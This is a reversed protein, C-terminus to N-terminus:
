CSRKQDEHTNFRDKIRKAPNGAAVSNPPIVGQRVVAGIALFSEKSITVGPLITCRSAVGVNEELVVPGVLYCEHEPGCGHTFYINRNTRDLFSAYHNTISLIHTDAACCCYDGIQVGGNGLIYCGKSLFVSKGISVEGEPQDFAANEVRRIEPGNPAPGAFIICGFAISSGESISIYRCGIFRVGPFISVDQGLHKLRCRYYSRRLAFGMRGPWNRIVAEISETCERFLAALVKMVGSFLRTM